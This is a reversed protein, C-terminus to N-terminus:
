VKQCRTYHKHLTSMSDPLPWWVRRALTVPSQSGGLRLAQISWLNLLWKFVSGDGWGWEMDNESHDVGLAFGGLTKLHESSALDMLSLSLAM